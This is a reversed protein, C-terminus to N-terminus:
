PELSKKVGKSQEYITANSSKLPMVRYKSSISLDCTSQSISNPMNLHNHADTSWIESFISM